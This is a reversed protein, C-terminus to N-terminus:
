DQRNDREHSCSTLVARTLPHTLCEFERISHQIWRSVCTTSVENGANFCNLSPDSGCVRLIRQVDAVIM